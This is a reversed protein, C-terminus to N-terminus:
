NSGGVINGKITIKGGNYIEINDAVLDSASTTIEKITTGDTFRGPGGIIISVREPVLNGDSNYVGVRYVATQVDNENALQFNDVDTEIYVRKMNAESEYHIENTVYNLWWYYGNFYGCAGIKPTDYTFVKNFTYTKIDVKYCESATDMKVLMFQNNDMVIPINCHPTDLKGANKVMLHFPDDQDIKVIYWKTKIKNIQDNQYVGITQTNYTQIVVFHYDDIKKCFMTNHGTHSSYPWYELNKIEDSISADWEVNFETDMIFDYEGTDEFWAFAEFGLPKNVLSTKGMTTYHYGNGMKVTPINTLTTNYAAVVRSKNVARKSKPFYAQTSGTIVPNCVVVYGDLDCYFVYGLRSKGLYYVTTHNKVNSISSSTGGKKYNLDSKSFLHIYNYADSSSWYIVYVDTETVDLFTPGKCSGIIGPLEKSLKGNNLDWKQFKISGGAGTKGNSFSYIMGDEYPDSIYPKCYKYGENSIDMYAHQYAYKYSSGNEVLGLKVEDAWMIPLRVDKAGMGYIDTTLDNKLNFNEDYWKGDIVISGSPGPVVRATTGTYRNYNSILAM